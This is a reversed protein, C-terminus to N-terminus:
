AEKEFMFRVTDRDKEKEEESLCQYPVLSQHIRLTADKAKGNAPIGYDWDNLFHYRCWRIHELESFWELYPLYTDPDTQESGTLIKLMQLRIEHYDVSNVNSYRTFADLGAWLTERSEKEPGTAGYLLAYNWNLQKAQEFLKENLINELKKGEQEADYIRLNARQFLRNLLVSECSFVDIRGNPVVALLDQLFEIDNKQDSVLIRDAENLCPIAQYWEEEHFIVPDGIKSIGPYCAIFKQDAYFVHYEIRQDSHFINKQLGEILLSEGLKGGGILVIRLQYEKEMAEQILNQEKWYARSQAEEYHFFHLHDCEVEQARIISSKIYVQKDSLMELNRRYFDYSDKEDTYMLIYRDARIMQNEPGQIGKRGTQALIDLVDAGDGYVAISNGCLYTIGRRIKERLTIFVLILGSATMLPAMWRAIEVYINPPTDVYNLVYMTMGMFTANVLTEEHISLYGYITLGLPLLFVFVKLLSKVVEKKM